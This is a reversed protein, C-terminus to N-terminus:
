RHHDRHPIACQSLFSDGQERRVLFVLILHVVGQLGFSGNRRRGNIFGDSLVRADVSVADESLQQVALGAM